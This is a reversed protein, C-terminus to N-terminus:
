ATCAGRYARLSVGIRPAFNDVEPMYFAGGFILGLFLSQCFRVITLEPNRTTLLFGRHLVSSFRSISNGLSSSTAAGFRAQLYESQKMFAPLDDYQNSQEGPRNNKLSVPNRTPPSRAEFSRQEETSYWGHTGRSLEQASPIEGRHSAPLALVPDTVLAALWDAYDGDAPAPFGRQALNQELQERPGHYIIHGESLLVVDDFLNYTEPTAQKLSLVVTADAAHAYQRLRLVIEEAVAADLGATIEDGCLVRPETLLIEGVSVRRKQGGSIGRVTPSGIVTDACVDLGLLRLM